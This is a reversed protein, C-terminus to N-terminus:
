FACSSPFFTGNSDAFIAMSPFALSGQSLMLSESKPEAPSVPRKRAPSRQLHGSKGEMRRGGNLLENSDQLTSDESASAAEDHPHSEERPSSDDLTKSGAGKKDKLGVLDALSGWSSMGVSAHAGSSAKLAEAREKAPIMWLVRGAPREILLSM